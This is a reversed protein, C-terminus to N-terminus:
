QLTDPCCRSHLKVGSESDANDASQAEVGFGLGYVM